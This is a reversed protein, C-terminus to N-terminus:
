MASKLVLFEIEQSQRAAPAQKQVALVTGPVVVVGWAVQSGLYPAAPPACPAVAKLGPGGVGGSAYWPKQAGGRGGADPHTGNEGQDCSRGEQSSHWVVEPDRSAPGQTLGRAREGRGVHQHRDLSETPGTRPTASDPTETGLGGCRGARLPSAEADREM